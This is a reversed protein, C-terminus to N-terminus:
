FNSLIAPMARNTGFHRRLNDGRLLPRPLPRPFVDGLSPEFLPFVKFFWGLISLNTIQGGRVLCIDLIKIWPTNASSSNTVLDWDRGMVAPPRHLVTHQKCYSFISIFSMALCIVCVTPPTWLDEVPKDTLALIPIGSLPDSYFVERSKILSERVHILYGWQLYETVQTSPLPNLHLLAPWVSFHPYTLCVLWCIGTTPSGSGHRCISTWTQLLTKDLGGLPYVGGWRSPCGQSSGPDGGLPTHNAM